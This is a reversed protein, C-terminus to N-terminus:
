AHLLCYFKSGSPARDGVPGDEATVHMREMAGKALRVFSGDAASVLSSQASTINVHLPGALGLMRCWLPTANVEDNAAVM